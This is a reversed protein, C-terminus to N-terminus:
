HKKGNTVTEPINDGLTGAGTDVSQDIVVTDSSQHSTSRGPLKNFLPLSPPHYFLVM